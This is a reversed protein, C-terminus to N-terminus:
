IRHYRVYVYAVLNEGRLDESPTATIFEGAAWVFAPNQDDLVGDDDEVNLGDVLNDSATVADPATGIDMTAGVVGSGEITYGDAGIVMVDVGEPNIWAGGGGGINEGPVLQLKLAGSQEAM